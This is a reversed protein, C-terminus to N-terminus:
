MMTSVGDPLTPFSKFPMKSSHNAVVRNARPTVHWIQALSPARSDRPNDRQESMTTRLGGLRLRPRIRGTPDVFRAGRGVLLEARTTGASTVRTSGLVRSKKRVNIKRDEASYLKKMVSYRSSLRLPPRLQRMRHTHLSPLATAVIRVM